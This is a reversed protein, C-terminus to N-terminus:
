VRAPMLLVHDQALFARRLAPSLGDYPSRQSRHCAIAAERVEYQASTDVVTLLADPAGLTDLDLGLYATGPNLAQMEEVWRRMLGNSLSSLVLSAAKATRTLALELAARVHLHDRHGDSGDLTIVLDAGIADLRAALDAALADV